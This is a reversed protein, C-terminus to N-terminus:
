HWEIIKRLLQLRQPEAILPFRNLLLQGTMLCGHVCGVNSSDLLVILFEWLLM